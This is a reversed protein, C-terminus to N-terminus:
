SAIFRHLSSAIFRKDLESPVTRASLSSPKFGDLELGRVTEISDALRKM